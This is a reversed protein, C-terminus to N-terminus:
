CCCLTHVRPSLCLLESEYPTHKNSKRLLYTNATPFLTTTDTTTTTHLSHTHTNHHTHTHTHTHNHTHTHTHLFSAGKFHDQGEPWHPGILGLQICQAQYIIILTYKYMNIKRLM